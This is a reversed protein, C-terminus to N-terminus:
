EGARGRAEEHDFLSLVRVGREAALGDGACADVLARLGAFTSCLNDLRGAYVFEELAGGITAPQPLPLTPAFAPFPPQPLPRAGRAGAKPM